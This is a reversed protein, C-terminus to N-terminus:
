NNQSVTHSRQATKLSTIITAVFQTPVDENWSYDIKSTRRSSANSDCCTYGNHLGLYPLVFQSKEQSQEPLLM